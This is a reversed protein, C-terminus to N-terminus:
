KVWQRIVTAVAGPGQDQGLLAIPKGDPGMEVTRPPQTNKPAPGAEKRVQTSTIEGSAVKEALEKVKAKNELVWDLGTIGCDMVGQEVYRAMEQARILVCELEPDDIGPYYTRGSFTVQYGALAFLKGTTDQLSGKPLGLRLKQPGSKPSM